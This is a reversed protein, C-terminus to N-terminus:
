CIHISCISDNGDEEEEEEEEDDDHTLSRLLALADVTFMISLTGIKM